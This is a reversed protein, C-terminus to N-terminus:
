DDLARVAMTPPATDVVQVARDAVRAAHSLLSQPHAAEAVLLAALELPDHASAHRLLRAESTFGLLAQVVALTLLEVDSLKPCLSIEPRFRTLEPRVKLEDDITVYLATALTDLDTDVLGERDITPNAVGIM